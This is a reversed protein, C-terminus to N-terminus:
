APHSGAEDDARGGLCVDGGGGEPVLLAGCAEARLEQARDVDGEGLDPAHGLAERHDVQLATAGQQAAERVGDVETGDASRILTTAQM